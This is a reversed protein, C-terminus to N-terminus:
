FPESPQALGSIMPTAPAHATTRAKSSAGRSRATSTATARATSSAAGAAHAACVSPWAVLLVNGAPPGALADIPPGPPPPAPPPRNPPPRNPPAPEADARPPPNAGGPSNPPVGFAPDAGGLRPAPPNARGPDPPPPKPPSLVDNVAAIRYTFWCPPPTM